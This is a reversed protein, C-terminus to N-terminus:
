KGGQTLAAAIAEQHTAFRCRALFDDDRSSPQPEWEWEGSKNLCEGSRRVAWLDPGEIQGVRQITIANLSRAEGVTYASIVVGAPRM